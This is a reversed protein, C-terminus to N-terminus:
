GRPPPPYLGLPGALSKKRGSVAYSKNHGITVVLHYIGRLFPDGLRSWLKITVIYLDCCIMDFVCVCVFVYIM